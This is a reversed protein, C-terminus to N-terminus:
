VLVPRVQQKETNGSVGHVTVIGTVIGGQKTWKKRRKRNVSMLVYPIIIKLVVQPSQAM